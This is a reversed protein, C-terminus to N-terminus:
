HPTLGQTIGYIPTIISLAIFGVILGTVIMCLPEILTTIREAGEEVEVEYIEATRLLSEALNGTMEGTRIIQIALMPILTPAEAFTESMPKGHLVAEHARVLVDRYLLCANASQVLELAPVLGVGSKMLSGLMKANTAVYYGRLLSGIYPIHLLLAQRVRRVAVYRDLFLLLGILFLIGFGLLPGHTAMGETLAILMRTSLPLSDEFGRFLPLIKPFAGFILFLVISATAILILVPYVLATTVRARLRRRRETLEVLYSLSEHLRGSTEGIRVVAVEFSSFARGHREFAQALGNGDAVMRTIRSFLRKTRTASADAALYMLATVIPIGSRLFISLRQIFLAREKMSLQLSRRLYWRSVRHM